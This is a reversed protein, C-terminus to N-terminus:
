LEKFNFVGNLVFLLVGYVVSAAVRAFLYHLETLELLAWFTALMAAFGIGVNVLFYAFGRAIGRETGPFVYERQLFYFVILPVVFAIAAAPVEQLEALEVLAALIALDLLFTATSAITNRGFM